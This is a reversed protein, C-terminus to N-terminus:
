RYIYCKHRKMMIFSQVKKDYDGYLDKLNTCQAVGAIGQPDGKYWKEKYILISLPDSSETRPIVALDSRERKQVSNALTRKCYASQVNRDFPTPITDFKTDQKPSGVPWRISDPSMQCDPKSFSPSYDQCYSSLSCYWVHSFLM